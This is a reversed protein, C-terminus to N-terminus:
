VIAWVETFEEDLNDRQYLTMNGHDNVHLYQFEDDISEAGVLTTKYGNCSEITLTGDVLNCEISEHDIWFGFDSGDGIHTGFYCYSPACDNLADILEIIYEQVDDGNEFQPIEDTHKKLEYLFTPILDEPRHTGHIVTVLEVKMPIVTKM